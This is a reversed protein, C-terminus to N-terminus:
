SQSQGPRPGQTGNPGRLKRYVLRVPVWVLVMGIVVISAITKITLSILQILRLRGPDEKSMKTKIEKNGIWVVHNIPLTKGNLNIEGTEENVEIKPKLEEKSM